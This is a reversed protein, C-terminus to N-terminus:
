RGPASRYRRRSPLDADFQHLEDGACRTEKPYGNFLISAAHVDHCILTQEDQVHQFTLNGM